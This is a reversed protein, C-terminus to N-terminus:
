ECHGLHSVYTMSAAFGCFFDTLHGCQPLRCTLYILRLRARVARPADLNALLPLVLLSRHALRLLPVRLATHQRGRVLRRPTALFRPHRRRAPLTLRGCQSPRERPCCRWHTEFYWGRRLRKAVPFSEVRELRSFIAASTSREICQCRQNGGLSSTM